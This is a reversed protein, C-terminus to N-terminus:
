QQKGLIFGDMEDMLQTKAFHKRCYEEANKGMNARDESMIRKIGEALAEANGIECCVGCKAERIIRETEGAASAIIAKGCAMYSQLKAPITKQWLPENNFSIFGADCTSLIEPVKEAPVRPIWIFKDTVGHERVQRDLETQYRGDGVLVFKVKENKLLEATKPLIELGQATGINGTFAIKFSDDDPIGEIKQKTIPRYFEEAYQPWYHVKDAPVKQKRGTIARVFSPSTTFIVDTDRYIMDVMRDIPGIIAKNHIGTVTEVNEPWLDQVYLYVPVKHKKGYWVGTLAQTMPSVEDTFVLDAEINNERVWKYGAAAFSLYNATMGVANILKNSSNGRAILPLRIIDVGNWTERRRKTYGYGKFFKGMPYNPIGTLVTVRYGRKVWEQAIDNVRFTEPYFYQSILLIHKKKGSSEKENYVDKGETKILSQRLDALQYEFSYESLEQEYCNSGFAKNVLGSIKGPMCSAVLVAPRLAKTVVPRKGAISAIERVINSTRTYEPNQPFYIGGEGTMMLKCVFECLNEIYLMSRENQVDPFLPLKKAMKALAPYNGKSGRGYIMPPRLVAVKFNADALARVGKDAQWKSDGYFNAPQPRTDRGIMKNTGYPASDGYVIMSSMFIFQNVSESKAKKATEIALDTNVAYYKEKIEDPVKGIDAHAIGAVHYVSDYKSFDSDRWTGDVMDIVDIELNPYKDEAYRKVSEGIYSGAGTILVSRKTKTDPYLELDCGLATAPDETPVGERLRREKNGTGGEVVGDGRAVSFITGVFCGIDFALAKTGGKRIHEAYEGDLEAKRSLELEDRGNIQAWGTLGPRIENAGYKDREAILVDQNWLAPRPGIVSMNGIFIDWIQPLEDLSHERLFRGVRTIYKEPNTLMHTPIDHPTSMKMSRFKHLKFFQKDRGIRKQTFLVPGPDDMKIALCIGGLVPSLVILGAFSLILDFGRKVYKEYVNLRCVTDDVVELHGRAGDANMDDNEDAVFKVVKGEFPNQQDLQGSYVSDDRKMVALTHLAAFAMGTISILITKKKTM